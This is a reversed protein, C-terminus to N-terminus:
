APAITPQPRYNQVIEVLKDKARSICNKRPPLYDARMIYYSSARLGHGSGMLYNDISIENTGGSSTGVFMHAGGAFLWIPGLTECKSKKYQEVEYDLAENEIAEIEKEEIRKNSSQTSHSLGLLALTMLGGILPHMIIYGAGEMVPATTLMKNALDSKTRGTTWNWVHVAKNAGYMLTNDLLEYGMSIPNKM